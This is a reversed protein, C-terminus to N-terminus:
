CNHEENLMKIIFCTGDASKSAHIRWPCGVAKCVATVRAREIKKKKIEFGEQICFDLLVGGFHKHDDFVQWLKLNIKGDLGIHSPADPINSMPDIEGEDRTTRHM